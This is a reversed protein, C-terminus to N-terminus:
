SLAKKYSLSTQEACKEWSFNKLQKYGEEIMNRSFYPDYITKRIAELLSTQDDPNFYIGAKGAVEPLSAADSVCVPCGNAFAELIPMGFGEYKSPYVFALAHTYLQNLGRENVSISLTNEFIGINKLLSIEENSFSQGVCILKLDPDESLLKKFVKALSIFNKYNSRGAVYLIYRGNPNNRKTQEPNEFGHYVVDIKDPHINLIEILDKKTNESISIIRRANKICKTMNQLEENLDKNKILDSYKYLENQKYIILDHVTIVYPKKTLNIFYPNFFTPHLIDFNNDKIIKKSYCHNLDYTAKRLRGGIRTSKSSIPLYMKRFFSQSDKLHQNNSYLLSLSYTNGKPLNSILKCFYKTIGGYKQLSFM